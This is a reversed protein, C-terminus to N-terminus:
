EGFTPLLAVLEDVTPMTRTGAIVEAEIGRATDWVAANHAVISQCFAQHTYGAVDKYTSCNHVSEFLTGNDDNYVDVSSQVYQEVARVMENRAKTLLEEAPIDTVTYIKDVQEGNLVYQPSSVRQTASDYAPQTGVIPYYGRAICTSEPSNVGVGFDKRRLNYKAIQGNEIKAYLRNDM